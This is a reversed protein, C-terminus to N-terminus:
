EQKIRDTDKAKHSTFAPQAIDICRDFRYTSPDVQHTRQFLFFHFRHAFCFLQMWAELLWVIAAFISCDCRSIPVVLHASKEDWRSKSFNVYQLYDCICSYARKPICFNLLSFGGWCILCGTDGYVTKRCRPTTTGGLGVGLAAM